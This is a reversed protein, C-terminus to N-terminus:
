SNIKYSYEITASKELIKTVSCYKEMSLDIARKVKAEDVEGKVEFLVNITEFIAPQENKRTAEIIISFDELEIKQKKLIHLVDIGSCGGLGALLLEMPRFGNDNGGINPSADINITKNNENKAEFHFANNVRQLEVKM